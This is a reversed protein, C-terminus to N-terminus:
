AFGLLSRKRGWLEVGQDGDRFVRGACNTPDWFIKWMAPFGVLTLLALGFIVQNRSCHVPLEM